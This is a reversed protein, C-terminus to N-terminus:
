ESTSIKALNAVGSIVKKAIINEYYLVLQIHQIEKGFIKAAIVVINYCLLM